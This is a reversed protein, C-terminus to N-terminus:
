FILEQVERIDKQLQERVVPPEGKDPINRIKKHFCVTVKRGEMAEPREFPHFEIRTSWSILNDVIGQGRVSLIGRVPSSGEISVAYIGDPPILKARDDIDVSFVPLGYLESHAPHNTAIGSITYFHDLCANARQINGQTLAKRIRTSSVTENQIDQEPIEEVGFHHKRSLKYLYEFDGRRQHGFHHNFGVVIMRARLRGILIDEVFRHSTTRAFEPTFELIILHDLGTKELLSIKEDRSCIMMLDKGRTDPYLVRRPHPHFTILVSEGDLDRALKALRRIIVQHGAHVGDFTGTTIVPNRIERTEELSHYVRM